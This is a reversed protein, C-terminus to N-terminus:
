LSPDLQAKLKEMAAGYHRNAASKGWGVQRGAERINIDDYFRLTLLAREQESLHSMAKRVRKQRERRIAEEEPSPSSEDELHFIAEIPTTPKSLQKQLTKIARRYAIVVLLNVTDDEKGAALRAAFDGTAHAMADPAEREIWERPFRKKHLLRVLGERAEQLQRGTVRDAVTTSVEM